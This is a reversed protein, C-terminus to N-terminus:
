IAECRPKFRNCHLSRVDDGFSKGFGNGSIEVDLNITGQEAEEPFAGTVRVKQAEAVGTGLVLTALLAIALNKISRCIIM